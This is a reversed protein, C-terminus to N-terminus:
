CRVTKSLELFSPHREQVPVVDLELVTAWMLRQQGNLHPWTLAEHALNRLRQMFAADREDLGPIGAHSAGYLLCSSPVDVLASAMRLGVIDHTGFVKAECKGYGGTGCSVSCAHSFFATKFGVSGYSGEICSRGLRCHRTRIVTAVNPFPTTVLFMM